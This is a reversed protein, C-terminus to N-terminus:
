PYGNPYPNPQVNEPQFEEEGYIESGSENQVQGLAPDEGVTVLELNCFQEIYDSVTGGAAGPELDSRSRAYRAQEAPSAEDWESCRSFDTLEVGTASSSAKSSGDSVLPIDIARDKWAVIGFIFLAFLAAAGWILWKKEIELKM